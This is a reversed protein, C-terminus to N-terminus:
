KNIGIFHGEELEYIEDPQNHILGSIKDTKEWGDSLLNEFEIESITSSEGCEYEGFGSACSKISVIKM